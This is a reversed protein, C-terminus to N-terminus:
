KRTKVAFALAPSNERPGTSIARKRPFAAFVARSRLLAPHHTPSNDAAPGGTVKREFPRQALCDSSKPAISCAKSRPPLGAPEAARRASM